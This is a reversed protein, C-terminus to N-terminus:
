RSTFITFGTLTTSDTFNKNGAKVSNKAKLTLVRKRELKVTLYNDSM